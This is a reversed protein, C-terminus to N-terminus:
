RIKRFALFAFWTERWAGFEDVPVADNFDGSGQWDNRRGLIDYGSRLVEIETVDSFLAELGKHTYRFYDAPSEHYRQAFPVVVIGVGSVQLLACMSRAAAWPQRLHEFVNNSYVVACTGELEAHAAIFNPSCIDAVVCNERTHEELDLGFYQFKEGFRERNDAHFQADYALNKRVGLLYTLEGDGCGIEVFRGGPTKDDFIVARSAEEKNIGTEITPISQPTYNLRCHRDVIVRRPIM